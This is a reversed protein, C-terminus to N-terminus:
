LAGLTLVQCPIRAVEPGTVLTTHRRSPRMQERFVVYHQGEVVAHQVEYHGTKLLATGVRTPQNLEIEGKKGIRISEPQASVLTPTAMLLVALATAKWSIQRM